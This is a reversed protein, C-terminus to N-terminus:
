EKGFLGSILETVRRFVNIIRQWLTSGEPDVESDLGKASEKVTIEDSRCIIQVSNPEPNKESTRRQM